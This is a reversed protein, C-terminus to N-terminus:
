EDRHHLEQCVLLQIIIHNNGPSLLRERDVQLTATRSRKGNGNELQMHYTFDLAPFSQHKGSRENANKENKKKEADDNEQYRGVPLEQGAHVYLSSIWYDPHDDMLDVVVDVVLGGNESSQVIQVSGIKEVGKELSSSSGGCATAGLLVECQMMQQSTNNSNDDDDNKCKDEHLSIRKIWGVLPVAEQGAGAPSFNVQHEHGGGLMMKIMFQPRCLPSADDGDGGHCRVFASLV